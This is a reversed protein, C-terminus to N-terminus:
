RSLRKVMDFTNIGEDTDNFRTYQYANITFEKESTIENEKEINYFVEDTYIMTVFPLNLELYENIKSCLCESQCWKILFHIRLNSLGLNTLTEIVEDKTLLFEEAKLYDEEDNSYIVKEEESLNHNTSVNCKKNIEKMIELAVFQEWIKDNEYSDYPFTYLLPAKNLVEDNFEILIDNTETQSKLIKEIDILDTYVQNEFIEHKVKNKKLERLLNNNIM